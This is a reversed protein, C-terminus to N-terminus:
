PITKTVVSRVNLLGATGRANEFRADITVRDGDRIFVAGGHCITPYVAKMTGTDDKITFYHICNKTVNGTFYHMRHSTVRGAIRVSKLKYAEPDGLLSSVKLLDGAWSLNAVLTVLLVTLGLGILRRAKWGKRTDPHSDM